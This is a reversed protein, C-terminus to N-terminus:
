VDGNIIDERSVSAQTPKSSISGKKLGCRLPMVEIYKRVAEETTKFGREKLENYIVKSSPEGNAVYLTEITLKLEDSLSYDKAVFEPYEKRKITFGYENELEKAAQLYAEELKDVHAIADIEEQTYNYNEIAKIVPEETIKQLKEIVEKTNEGIVTPTESLKLLDEFLFKVDCKFYNLRTKLDLYYKKNQEKLSEPLKIDHLLAILVDVPKIEEKYVPANEVMSQIEDFASIFNSKAQRYKGRVEQYEKSDALDDRFPVKAIELKEMLEKM